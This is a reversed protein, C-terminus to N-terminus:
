GVGKRWELYAEIWEFGKPLPALWELSTIDVAHTKGKRKCVAKLGYGEDPWELDTVEVEEGIVKAKFPCVVNDQIMTLLGSHQEDEDYCDVTAEEILERLRACSTKARPSKSKGPKM